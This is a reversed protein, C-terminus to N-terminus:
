PADPARPCAKWPSTPSSGPAHHLAGPPLLAHGPVQALLRHAIHQPMALLVQRARVRTSLLTAVDYTLVEVGAATERLDYALTGKHLPADVQRRLHETLFNNGEPWTLVDAGTANHARGKRSAFYHM